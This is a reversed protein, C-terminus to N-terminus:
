GRTSIRWTIEPRSVTAANLFAVGRLSERRGGVSVALTGYPRGARHRGGEAGPGAGAHARGKRPRPVRALGLRCFVPGGADPLLHAAAHQQADAHLRDDDADV